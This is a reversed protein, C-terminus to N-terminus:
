AEVCVLDDSDGFLTIADQLCSMLFSLLFLKEYGRLAPDFRQHIFSFITTRYEEFVSIAAEHERCVM